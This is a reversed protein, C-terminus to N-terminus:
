RRRTASATNAACTWGTGAMSVLTLGAPLKDTVTVTGSTPGATAANSVSLTYTAGNQGQTFSGTHSKALSLVPKALIM